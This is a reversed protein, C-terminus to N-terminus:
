FLTYIFPAIASSQAFVIFVGVILLALVLPTLWWSKRQWFFELLEGMITVHSLLGDFIRM